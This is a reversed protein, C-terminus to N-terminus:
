PLKFAAINTCFGGGEREGRVNFWIDFVTYRKPATLFPSPFANEPFECALM